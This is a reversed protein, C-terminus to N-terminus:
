SADFLHGDAHRRQTELNEIAEDRMVRALLERDEDQRDEPLIM